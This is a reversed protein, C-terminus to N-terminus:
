LDSMQNNIQNDTSKHLFTRFFTIDEFLGRVSDGGVVEFALRESSTTGFVIISVKIDLDLSKLRVISDIGEPARTPWNFLYQRIHGSSVVASWQQSCMRNASYSRHYVIAKKQHIVLRSRCLAWGLIPPRMQM